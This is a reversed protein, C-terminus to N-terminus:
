RLAFRLLFLTLTIFIQENTYRIVHYGATRLAEARTQDYDRQQAHVSGDIELILRQEACCFDVIFRGIPHQRRFKFGDLQRNRLRDWLLTEAPTQIRRLQQARIQTEPRGRWRRKASRDDSM